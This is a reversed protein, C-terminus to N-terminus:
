SQDKLPGVTAIRREYLANCLSCVSMWPSYATHSQCPGALQVAAAPLGADGYRKREESVGNRGERTETGRGGDTGKGSRRARGVGGTLCRSDGANAVILMDDVLMAAVM